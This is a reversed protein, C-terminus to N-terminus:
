ANNDQGDTEDVLEADVEEGTVALERSQSAEAWENERKAKEAAAQVRNAQEEPSRDFDIADNMALAENVVEESVGYPELITM